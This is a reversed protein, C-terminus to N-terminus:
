LCTSATPEANAIYKVNFFSPLSTSTIIGSYGDPNEHTLIVVDQAKEIEEKINDITM